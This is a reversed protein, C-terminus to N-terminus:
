KREDCGALDYTVPCKGIDSRTCAVQLLLRMFGGDLSGVMAACRSMMIMDALLNAVETQATKENRYGFSEGSFKKLNRHQTFWGYQPFEIRVKDFLEVDDTAMFINNLGLPGM